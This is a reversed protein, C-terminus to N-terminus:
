LCRWWAIRAGYIESFIANEAGNRASREPLGLVPPLSRQPGACRGQAHAARRRLAGDGQPLAPSLPLGLAAVPREAGRGLDDAERAQRRPPGPPGRHVAGPYLPPAAQRLTRAGRGDRRDAG